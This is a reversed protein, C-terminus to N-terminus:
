RRRLSVGSVAHNSTKHLILTARERTPLINEELNVLNIEKWIRGGEDVAADDTLEAYRHFYAAPDRFATDRLTVFRDVYWREIDAPDADVYISFDFYDSVFTGTTGGQLVNLGELILIDPQRVVREEGALIDYAQHSYVPAAVEAAGSKLEAV